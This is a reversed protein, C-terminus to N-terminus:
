SILWLGAGVATVFGLTALRLWTTYYGKTTEELRFYGAVAALLAVLGGLVKGLLIMRNQSVYERDHRLIDRYDKRTLEVRLSVGHKVGIDQLEKVGDPEGDWNKVLGKSIYDLPPEWSLSGGQDAFFRRIQVQAQKLASQEADERTMGYGKVEFGFVKDKRAEPPIEGGRKPQNPDSAYGHVGAALLWLIVLSAELQLRRMQLEEKL